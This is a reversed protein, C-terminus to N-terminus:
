GSEFRHMAAMMEAFCPNAVELPPGDSAVGAEYIPEALVVCAHHVKRDKTIEFPFYSGSQAIESFAAIADISIVTDAASWASFIRKKFSEKGRLREQLSNNERMLAILERVSNFPVRAYRYPNIGVLSAPSTVLHLLPKAMLYEVAKSFVNGPGGYLSFAASFLYLDGNIRKDTAAFYFGLAGGTSFGGISVKTAAQTAADIGFQVNKKWQALSVGSMKGPQKLGHCQLLPLYVNYGMHSHLYDGVALMAYPSDTLGHLLVIAKESTGPHVLKRPECGTRVTEPSFYAFADYYEEWITAEDLRHNM